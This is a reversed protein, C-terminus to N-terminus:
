PYDKPDFVDIEVEDAGKMGVSDTVKVKATYTGPKKYTHKPSGEHSGKSGDGFNWVYKLQGTDGWVGVTFAATLPAKGHDPDALAWVVLEDNTAGRPTPTAQPVSETPPATPAPAQAAPPEGPKAGTGYGCASVLMGMTVMLRLKRM